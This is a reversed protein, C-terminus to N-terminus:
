VANVAEELMNLYKFATQSGNTGKTKYYSYTIEGDIWKVFALKQNFWGRTKIPVKIGYRDMLCLVISKGDILENKFDKKDRINQEVCKLQVAIEERQKKEEEKQKREYEEQRKCVEEIRQRWQEDHFEQYHRALEIEGNDALAMILSNNIWRGKEEMEQLTRKFGNLGIYCLWTEKMNEIMQEIETWPQVGADKVCSNGLDNWLQYFPDDYKRQIIEVFFGKLAECETIVELPYLNKGKKIPTNGDSKYDWCQKRIAHISTFDFDKIMMRNVREIRDACNGITDKLNQANGSM